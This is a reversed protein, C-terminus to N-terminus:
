ESADGADTGADKNGIETGISTTIVPRFGPLNSEIEAGTQDSGANITVRANGSACVKLIQASSRIGFSSCGVLALAVLLRGPFVGGQSGEHRPHPQLVQVPVHAAQAQEQSERSAGVERERLRDQRNRFMPSGDYGSWSM